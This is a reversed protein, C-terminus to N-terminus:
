TAPRDHDLLIIQGTDGNVQVRDGTNVANLIDGYVVAAIGYERAVVSGHSIPGGSEMILAGAKLFLPTWAPNTSHTVLIDGDELEDDGLHEIKKVVGTYEGPAIPNGNMVGPQEPMTYNYITEGDSIVIPPIRKYKFQERYMRRNKTATERLDCEVNQIDAIYLYFVDPSHDLRGQSVLEDGVTLLMKRLLNNGRILDFKPQERMGALHRYLKLKDRVKEATKKGKLGLLQSYITEIAQEADKMKQHYDHLMQEPNGAMYSKIIELIYTPNEHWKEVGIDMETIGRHGYEEVFVQILPDEAKPEHGLRKYEVALKMLKEGMDTTPNNKLAQKVPALDVKEGLWQYLKKELKPMEIIPKVCYMFSAFGFESMHIMFRTIYQLKEDVTQCASIEKEVEMVFRDGLNLMKDYAKEKLTSGDRYNKFLGWYIKLMKGTIKFRGGQNIYEKGDRELYQILAKSAIMDKGEIRQPIKPAMRKKAIVDSIDIYFRGAATGVWDPYPDEKGAFLKTYGNFLLRYSEIGMPTLPEHIGQAITSFCVYCRKKHPSKSFPKPRPFLTTIARSQVVYVEGNRIVWETDQPEGNYFAEIRNLGEVISQIEQQNLCVEEMELEHTAVEETGQETCVTKVMKRHIKETIIEGSTRDVIWEDPTVHGGVISEGLGWAANILAHHRIGTVPNASFAVGSKEGYILTQVLVAHQIVIKDLQNERRYVIARENWLSAWTKKLAEKFGELDKINLYSDYQGAFSFESLDEMTSSSRVAVPKEVREFSEKLLEFTGPDYDGMMFAKQIQEQAELPTKNEVSAKIIEGIGNYEVFRDYLTTTVVFGDPVRIGHQLLRGLQYAKGGVRERMGQGIENLRIIM